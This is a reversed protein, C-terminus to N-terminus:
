SAVLHKGCAAPGSSIVRWYRGDHQVAIEIEPHLEDERNLAETITAPAPLRGGLRRWKTAAIERAPGDHELALWEYFTSTGSRYEVRLTPRSDPKFHPRLTLSHVRVWTLDRSLVALNDAHGEHKPERPRAWQYGCSECGIAKITTYTNGRITDVTVAGEREGADRSRITTVNVADVLRIEVADAELDKNKARRAYAKMAIAVNRIDKAEDVSKAKALARCAAEYYALPGETASTVLHGSM